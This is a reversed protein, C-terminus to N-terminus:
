NDINAEYGLLKKRKLAQNLLKCDTLINPSILWYVTINENINPM